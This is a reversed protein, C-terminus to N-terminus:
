GQESLVQLRPRCGYCAAAGQRVQAEALEGEREEWLRREQDALSLPAAPAPAAAPAAAEPAGGGRDSRSYTKLPAAAFKPAFSEATGNRAFHTRLTGIFAAEAAGPGLPPLAACPDALPLAYARCTRTYACGPLAPRPWACCNGGM